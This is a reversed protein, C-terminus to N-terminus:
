RNAGPQLRRALRMIMALALACLLAAAVYVPRYDQALVLLGGLPGALSMAVDSFVTYLGLAAGRNEDPIRRLAEVALAPFILAFGSGALAAGLTTLWASAAFAVLALGITEVAFSISAVRYGGRRRIADSFLLRVAIMAATFASLALAAGSWGRSAFHLVIFSAIVGFGAGGFALGMGFPAIRSLLRGFPLPRGPVVAVAASRSALGHMALAVAICVVGVAPLGCAGDLLVGLPAGIGMAGYTSIGNWSIATAMSQPGARRTAWMIAATAVFSEGVGLTLRAALLAALALPPSAVLLPALTLLAGSVSVGLLGRLAAHKPGDRDVLTGVFGRSILTALYQAGIVVGVTVTGYGLRFHVFGPLAALQLGIILYATFTCLLPVVSSSPPLVHRM